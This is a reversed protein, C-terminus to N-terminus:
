ARLWECAHLSLHNHILTYGCIYRLKTKAVDLHGPETLILISFEKLIHIAIQKPCKNTTHLMNCTGHLTSYHLGRHKHTYVSVNCTYECSCTCKYFSLQVNDYNQKISCDLKGLHDRKEFCTM